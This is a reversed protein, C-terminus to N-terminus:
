NNNSKLYSKLQEPQLKENSNQEDLIRNQYIGTRYKLENNAWNLVDDVVEKKAAAKGKSKPKNMRKSQGWIVHDASTTM